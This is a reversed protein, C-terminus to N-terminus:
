FNSSTFNHEIFCNMEQCKNAMFTFFKIEEALSVNLNLLLYKFSPYINLM